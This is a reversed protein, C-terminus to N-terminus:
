KHEDASLTIPEGGREASQLAARTLRIVPRVDEIPSWNPGGDRIMRVFCEDATEDQEASALLQLRSELSSLRTDSGAVEAQDVIRYAKANLIAFDAHECHINIQERWMHADGVFCFSFPAGNSMEAWGWVKLPVPSGCNDSKARVSRATLGTVWCITDLQHGSADYFFGGPTIEPNHRWTGKNPTIWDEANYATITRVEGHRGSLIEDRLARMSADYRRPYTLAIQKAAADCAAIVQNLEDESPTLPKECLIHLGAEFAALVQRVHFADPSAICVADIDKNLVHPSYDGIFEPLTPMLAENVDDIAEGSPDWLAVLHVDPMATFRLAHVKGLAGCGIIGIRLPGDGTM